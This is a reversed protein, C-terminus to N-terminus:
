TGKRDNDRMENIFSRLMRYVGVVAVVLGLVLGSLTLWPQTHYRADLLSGVYVGLFISGGVFAGVGVFRLASM